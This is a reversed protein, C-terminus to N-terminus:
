IDSIMTNPTSTGEPFASPSATGHGEGLKQCNDAFSPTGQSIFADSWDRDRDDCSLREKQTQTDERKILIDTM